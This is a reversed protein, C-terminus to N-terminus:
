FRSSRALELRKHHSVCLVADTPHDVSLRGKCTADAMSCWPHEARCRRSHADWAADYLARRRPQANYAADRQRTHAACRTRESIVPCGPEACPRM